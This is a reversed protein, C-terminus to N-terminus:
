FTEAKSKRKDAKSGATTNRTIHSERFTHITHALLKPLKYEAQLTRLTFTFNDMHNVLCWTM